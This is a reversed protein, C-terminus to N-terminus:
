PASREGRLTAAALKAREALATYRAAGATDGLAASASQLLQLDLAVRQALGLSQDLALAQQADALVANHQGLAAQAQARLRLANARDNDNKATTLATSASAAAAENQNAALQTRARLVTLASLQGCNAACAAMADQVHVQARALDNDMLLAAARGHATARLDASLTNSGAANSLVSEVLPLALQPQGADALARAQSLRARAQPELLALTEYVLAASEYGGAAADFEGKAFAQGARREITQAAQVMANTEKAPPTSSCAALVAATCLVTATCARM